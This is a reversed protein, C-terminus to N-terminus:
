KRRKSVIYSSVHYITLLVGLFLGGYGWIVDGQKILDLSLYSIFLIAIVLFSLTLINYKM